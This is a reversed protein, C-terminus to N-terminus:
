SRARVWIPAACRGNSQTLVPRPRGGNAHAIWRGDLRKADIALVICQSGFRNAAETLLAMVDKGLLPRKLRRSLSRLEALMFKRDSEKFQQRYHQKLGSRRIAAVFSGFVEYYTNLSHSKGEKSLRNIDATTPTRNLTNRALSQLEVILRGVTPLGNKRQPRDPENRDFERDVIFFRKCTRCKCRQKGKALGGKSTQDSGCHFCRHGSLIVPRPM